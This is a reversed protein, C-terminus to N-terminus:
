SQARSLCGSVPSICTVVSMLLTIVWSSTTVFRFGVLGSVRFGLGWGRCGVDWGRLGLGVGCVRVAVADLFRIQLDQALRTTNFAPM